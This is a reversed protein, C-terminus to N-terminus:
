FDAHLTIHASLPEGLYAGAMNAAVFYRRNTLNHVNVDVGWKRARYGFAANAIVYAPASNINTIDSYVRSMYNVGGGVHFGPVGDITFDYTTWLNAMYAPVDQPNNGVATVGQPNNTM